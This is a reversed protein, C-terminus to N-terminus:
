LPTSQAPAVPGLLTTRLSEARQMATAAAATNGEIAEVRAMLQWLRMQELDGDPLRRRQLVLGVDLWARAARANDLALEVEASRRLVEVAHQRRPCWNAPCLARARALLAAAADPNGRQLAIGARQALPAALRWDDAGWLRTMRLEAEVLDVEAPEIRGAALLIRGREALLQASEASLQGVEGRVLEYATDLAQIAEEHADAASAALGLQVLGAGRALPLARLERQRAVATRASQLAPLAQGSASLVQARLTLLQAALAVDIPPSDALALAEAVHREADAFADLQWDVQALQMLRQALQVPTAQPDARTAEVLRALTRQARDFEGLNFYSSGITELMSLRSRPDQALEGDLRASAQDLVERVTMTRGQNHAPSASRILSQLYELTDQARRAEIGARQAESAARDRAQALRLIFGVTLGLLAVLALAGLTAALWHRQVTKRLRYLAGGGRAMVPEGRLWARTDAALDAVTPYRSDPDEAMAMRLIAALDPDDARERIAAPRAAPARTGMPETLDPDLAPDPAIMVELLRGLQWIDSAIGVQRGAVQEPSAFRPTHAGAALGEGEQTMLKAIGFDLLRASGQPTVLINSPKIDRHILLRAHAFQVAECVDLFLDLRAPLSLRRRACWGDIPEGEIYEMAFWLAGDSTRGGDLLRGIHPHALNALVQREHRFLEEAVSDPADARVLKLAVQQEFEGDVRRGLYVVAMGGRGLEREVAFPGIREGPAYGRTAQTISRVFGDFLPGELAGAPRLFAPDIPM